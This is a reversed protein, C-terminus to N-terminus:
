ENLERLCVQLKKKAKRWRRKASEYHIGLGVAVEGLNWGQLRLETVQREEGELKAVAQRVRSQVKRRLVTREPQSLDRSGENLNTRGGRGVNHDTDCMVAANVSRDLRRERRWHKKLWDKVRATVVRELFTRLKCGDKKGVEELRYKELGEEVALWGHQQADAFDAERMHRRGMMWAVWAEKWLRSRKKVEERAPEYDVEYGLVFLAEPTMASLELDYGSLQPSMTKGGGDTGKERIGCYSIKQRWRSDSSLGGALRTVFGITRLTGHLFRAQSTPQTRTRVPELPSCFVFPILVFVPLLTSNLYAFHGFFSPTQFGAVAQKPAFRATENCLAQKAQM